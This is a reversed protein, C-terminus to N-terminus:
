YFVRARFQAEVDKAPNKLPGLLYDIDEVSWDEIQGATPEAITATGTPILSFGLPNISTPAYRNAATGNPDIGILL